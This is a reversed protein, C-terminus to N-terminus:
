SRRLFRKRLDTEAMSRACARNEIAGDADNVAIKARDAGRGWREVLHDQFGRYEDVNDIKAMDHSEAFKALVDPNLRDFDVKEIDLLTANPDKEISKANISNFETELYARMSDRMPNPNGETPKVRLQEGLWGSLKGVRGRHSNMYVLM